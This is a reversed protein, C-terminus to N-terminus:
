IATTKKKEGEFIENAKPENQDAENLLRMFWM